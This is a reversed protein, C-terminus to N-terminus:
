DFSMQTVIKLTLGVFQLASYCDSLFANNYYRHVHITFLSCCEVEIRQYVSVPADKSLSRIKANVGQFSGYSRAM